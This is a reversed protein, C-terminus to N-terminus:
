PTIGIYESKEEFAKLIDQVTNPLQSWKIRNQLYDLTLKRVSDYEEEESNVILAMDINEWLSM